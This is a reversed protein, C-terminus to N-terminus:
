DSRRVEEGGRGEEEAEEDWADELRAGTGEQLATVLSVVLSAPLDAHHVRQVSLEWVGLTAVAWPDTKARM